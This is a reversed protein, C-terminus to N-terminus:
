VKYWTITQETLDEINQKDKSFSVEKNQIWYIAMYLGYFGYIAILAIIHGPSIIVKGLLLIIRGFLRISVKFLNDEM